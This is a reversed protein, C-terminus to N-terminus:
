LANLRRLGVSMLALGRAPAIASPMAFHREGDRTRGGDHFVSPHFKSHFLEHLIPGDEGDCSIEIKASDANILGWSHGESLVVESIRVTEGAFDKSWKLGADFISRLKSRRGENDFSVLFEVQSKIDEMCLHFSIFKAENWCKTSASAVGVLIELREASTNFILSNHLQSLPHLTSANNCNQGRNTGGSAHEPLRFSDRLPWDTVSQTRKREACAFM